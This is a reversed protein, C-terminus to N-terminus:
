SYYQGYILKKKNLYINNMLLGSSFLTFIFLKHAQFAQFKNVNANPKNKIVNLILMSYPSVPM